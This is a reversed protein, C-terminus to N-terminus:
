LSISVLVLSTTPTALSWADRQGNMSSVEGGVYCFGHILSSLDPLDRELCVVVRAACASKSAMELIRLIHDHLQSRDCSRPMLVYLSRDKACRVGPPATSARYSLDCKQVVAGTWGRCVLEVGADEAQLLAGSTHWDVFIRRLFAEATAKPHHHVDHQAPSVEPTGPVDFRATHQVASRISTSAIPASSSVQTWRQSLTHEPTRRRRGSLTPSPPPSLPIAHSTSESESSSAAWPGVTHVSTISSSTSTHPATGRVSARRGSGSPEPM